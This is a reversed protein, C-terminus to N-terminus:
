INLTAPPLPLVHPLFHIRIFDIGNLDDFKWFKWSIEKVIKETNQLPYFLYISLLYISM